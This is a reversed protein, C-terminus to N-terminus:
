QTQNSQGNATSAKLLHEELAPFAAIEGALDAPAFLRVRKVINDFQERALSRVVPSLEALTHWLPPAEQHPPRGRVQLNFEVEREAPPADVILTEPPIPRGLAASLSAALHASVQV